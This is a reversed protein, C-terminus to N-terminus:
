PGPPVTGVPAAPDQAARGPLPVTAPWPGSGRGNQPRGLLFGQGYGVGLVQLTNLEAPTEIGEAILRLKRKLAFYGMGAILAQRAPDANIGRILGIDLKVFAPALELIHRLSAYGAGADDVAIRVRPGLAALEERLTPYDDIGVHETIELVLPRSASALLERTAGSAILAPSVNLSLYANPPLNTAAELAALITAAELQLGLGCRAALAFTIDPPVGDTFRSLAEYGTVAGSHLDVIPQFFPTFASADLIGQTRARASNESYRAEISPSLLTGLISALTTLVPLQEIFAERDGHLIALGVLGILGRSGLLPAYAVTRIGTSAMQQGYSGDEPRARWDETWVGRSAHEFLYQARAAPLVTNMAVAAQVPGEVGLVVGHDEGDLAIVFAADVIPLQVLGSCAVSAIAEPTSNADIGKLAAEIMAQERARRGITEELARERTVDRDTQMFSVTTGSADRIGSIVAELEVLEGDKRRNVILGSWTKGALVQDWIGSFFSRPHHGSGVMGAVKGVIEEPEYGYVRSFSGNVYTVVGDMDKIWVADATQEVAAALTAREAEAAVQETVDQVTGVMRIPAGDEGRIVEAEDHILRISGDPRLGRYDVSYPRDLNLAERESAQVRARDDPHVFALFAETADPITGPEVGYIRHLEASRQATGAAIDWEWSGIHSIRQAEALNRESMRLGLDANARARLTNIGFALDGALVTLLDVDAPLFADPESAYMALVGFPVTDTRLPLAIASAYGRKIAEDRWPALDPDTAFNRGLAPRNSRMATGAPGRGLATDSWSMRTAELYGSELGAWAIARITKDPDDEAVGAWALRYGAENVAIGCILDLLEVEDTARLLAKQAAQLIALVRRPSYPEPPSAIAPDRIARPAVATAAAVAKPADELGNARRGPIDGSSTV